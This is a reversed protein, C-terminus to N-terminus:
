FAVAFGLTATGGNAAEVGSLVRLLYSVRARFGRQPAPLSENTSDAM